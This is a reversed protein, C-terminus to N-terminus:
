RKVLVVIIETTGEDFHIYGDDDVTKYYQYGSLAPLTALNSIKVKLYMGEVPEFTVKAVGNEDTEVPSQCENQCILVSAGAINLANGNQDVLKVTHEIKNEVAVTITASTAGADFTTAGSPMIYGLPVSKVTARIRVVGEEKSFSTKVKGETDTTLDPSTAQPSVRSIAVVAGVVANGNTDVVTVTYETMEEEVAEGCGTTDCVGDGDSDTHSNCSVEVTAGCGENDCVGDKNNDVHSTCEEGGCSFLALSLTMVLAFSLILSLIKKINRM